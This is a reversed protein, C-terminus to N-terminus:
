QTEARGSMVIEFSGHAGSIKASLVQILSKALGAWFLHDGAHYSPKKGKEKKLKKTEGNHKSMEDRQHYLV